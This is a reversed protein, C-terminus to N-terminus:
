NKISMDSVIVAMRSEALVQPILEDLKCIHAKKSEENKRYLHFYFCSSLIDILRNELSFESSLPNFLHFIGNLRNNADM